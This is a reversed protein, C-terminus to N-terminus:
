FRDVFPETHKSGEWTLELQLDDTPGDITVWLEATARTAYKKPAFWRNSREDVQQVATVTAAHTGVLVGDYLEYCSLRFKGDKEIKGVSARHGQPTIQVQGAKLPQGDIMVVGSVPVIGPHEEGCGTIGLALVCCLTAQLQLCHCRSMMSKSGTKLRKM